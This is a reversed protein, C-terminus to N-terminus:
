GKCRSEARLLEAVSWAQSICGGPRHPHDGDFLEPLTRVGPGRLALLQGIIERGQEKVQELSGRISLLADIYPGILWPWVSGQHYASDRQWPSGEYRGTYRPDRPSLTRLGYPTLLERTVTEFIRERKIQPLLGPLAAAIIQNPRITADEKDIVDYLCGCESNWFRQYGRKVKEARQLFGPDFAALDDSDDGDDKRDGVYDSVYDGVGDDEDDYLLARSMESMDLLASYWLANIETCKGARATVPRGDVRADMWTMAPGSSILSDEDSGFDPGPRSYRDYVEIVKPWIERVFQCDQSKEFYASLARVFWLSADVTNYSGAGLDNPLVGDRMASAFTALVERAETLRGTCLLLGPLSIMSDRGWDDFWHYGAIISRGRGRRVIFSDAARFLGSPLTRLGSLREIERRELGRWDPMESRWLSASIAFCADGSLQMEFSGPTHLDERWSLGRGREVDYEFNQYTDEGARFEPGDSLLMLSVEPNTKSSVAVGRELRKQRFQPLPSAAHFSRSHILPVIRLLGRGNRIRYAIITTNEGHPMFVSKEILCEGLKYRFSPLPDMRFETLHRFGQPHIAGPYQHAALERGDIMEDLSSLLLWRGSPPTLSAVLLGHYARTNAACTTSSSYGGIGNGILWEQETCSRYGDPRATFAPMM